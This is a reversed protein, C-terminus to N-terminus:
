IRDFWFRVTKSRGISGMVRFSHTGKVPCGFNCPRPRVVLVVRSVPFAFICMGRMSRTFFVGIEAEPRARWSAPINSTGRL